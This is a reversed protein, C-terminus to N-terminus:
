NLSGVMAVTLWPLWIIKSLFRDSFNLISAICLTSTLLERLTVTTFTFNNKIWNKKIQQNILAAIYLKVDLRWAWRERCFYYVYFNPFLWYIDRQLRFTSVTNTSSNSYCATNCLSHLANIYWLSLFNQLKFRVASQSHTNKAHPPEPTSTHIIWNM